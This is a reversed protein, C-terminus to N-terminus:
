HGDLYLDVLGSCGLFVLACMHLRDDPNALDMAMLSCNLFVSFRSLCAIMRDLIGTAPGHEQGLFWRDLLWRDDALPGEEEDGGSCSHGGDTWDDWDM